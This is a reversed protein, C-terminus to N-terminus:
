AFLPIPKGNASKGRGASPIAPRLRPMSRAVRNAYPPPLVLTEPTVGERRSARTMVTAAPAASASAFGEWGVLKRSCVDM